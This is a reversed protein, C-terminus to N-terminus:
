TSPRTKSGLLCCGSRGRARRRPDDGKCSRWRPRHCRSPRRKRGRGARRGGVSQDRDTLMSRAAAYDRAALVAIMPAYGQPAASNWWLWWVVAATTAFAALAIGGAVRLDGGTRHRWAVVVLLVLAWGTLVLEPLLATLLDRTLSLDLTM